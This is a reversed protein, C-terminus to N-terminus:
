PGQPLMLQVKGPEPAAPMTRANNLEKVAAASHNRPKM